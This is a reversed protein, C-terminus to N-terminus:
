RVVIGVEPIWRERRRQLREEPTEDGHDIPMCQAEPLDFDDMVALNVVAYLREDIRSTAAVVVGCRQCLHFDATATGFRYQQHHKEDVSLQLVSGVASTWQAGHRTCFSCTCCRANIAARKEPTRYAIQLAGCHCQGALTTM